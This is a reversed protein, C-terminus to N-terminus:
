PIAACGSGACIANLINSLRIGARLLQQEAVAVTDNLYTPPMAISAINPACTGAPANHAPLHLKTYVQQKALGNSEQAWVLTTAQPVQTGNKFQQFLAAATTEESNGHRKMVADVEDNDWFAHLENTVDHPGHVIPPAIAVCNGGMDGDTAAHLPQHVDGVFHILFAVEKSSTSRPPVPTTLLTFGTQNTQLRTRMEEIRDIVCDHNPCLGAISFVANVSVDIFHWERTGTRKKNIEDPWTAADAMADDLNAPPVGLITALRTRAPQTLNKAAILAVIRHGEHGWARLSPAIGISAVGIVLLAVRMRRRM